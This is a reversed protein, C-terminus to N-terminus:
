RYFSAGYQEPSAMTKTDDISLFKSRAWRRGTMM